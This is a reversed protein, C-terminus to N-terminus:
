LNFKYTLSPLFRILDAQTTILNQEIAHNAKVIPEGANNEIKNFNVAVVNKHALFNYISFTLSNQFKSDPNKNLIFKFAIDLRNYNPLRDNNKEGYIPVTVDNFTYFGTPSSFASGTYMTWYASFLVRRKIQYNLMLSFDHPRDQFAPYERGGNIGDTQRLARSYNYSIWGNLRGFNKKLMLEFGYATTNGFRLEGEVLPNLLTNAHPKYDIQNDMKKYYVESSIEIKPKSFYKLYGLAIQNARQPKINPSSPLWIEVSTFPSASNSILQMYQHYLGYTLKLYSTSDLSYQLGLRPNLNAYSNYVGDGTKISDVPEYKEDFTYFTTPGVNSWGMGRIGANFRWKENIKYEANFYIVSQRSNSQELKPFISNASETFIQGPNFNFAHLEVGFKTTLKPSSFYTFDSKLSLKGIGSLWSNNGSYLNYRYNGTYLITNSFLKPNFIHNWRISAAFNNWGLGSLENVPNSNTLRDGGNFVSIFLRNKDNIKWNWKFNFDSFNLDLNPNNRRYLWRFASHRISAFFSSKEKVIPGEVSFRYLLPNFAASFEFKNLNGDKTRIDVISSLRDGLSVPMDNKYVKISKTFDPIVMSYFGFLHAPNYVPADDIIILNQDKEGGRTFFFASGDSHSKIGPLSQIGKILGSEGGFEPMNELDIPNMELAGIHKKNLLDTLPVKVIISQLEETRYRLKVDKKKNKNLLIKSEESEFGVYSYEVKYDDKPLRLSYFGFENTIAGRQTGKAFVSAGILSEGSLTDNVFGSLTYFEPEPPPAEEVEIKEARNLVIQNEIITFEIPIKAALQELAEELKANKVNFSIKQKTDVSKPNYSFNIGSQKSIEKLVKGVSIKSKQITIQATSEMQTFFVCLFVSLFYIILRPKPM